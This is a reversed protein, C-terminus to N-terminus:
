KSLVEGTAQRCLVCYLCGTSSRSLLLSSEILYVLKTVLQVADRVASKAM